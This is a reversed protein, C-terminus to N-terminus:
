GARSQARASRKGPVRGLQAGGDDGRVDRTDHPQVDYLLGAILRTAAWAGFLGVVFGTAVSWMGQAVIMRVVSSREAGLALRIGIEQTREAVAYAVVGYVGLAALVLAVIAFSASCCCTSAAHRLRSRCRMRWRRSRQLVVADSRDGVAGEQDGARRRDSRRRHADGAHRLFAARRRSSLVIRAGRRYRDGRIESRSRRRRHDGPWGAGLWPMRIRAASRIATRSLRAPGPKRQDIAVGPTDLEKFWRGSVLSMGLLPGFSPSISSVPAGRRDREGPPPIRRAKRSARADNFRPGNHDRRRPCWAANASEVRLAAAFDHRASRTATSRVRPLGHADDPDSGAHLRGSVEDDAVHEQVDPRRRGAARDTLAVQVAVMARGTILVRRSASVSRGGEKLVEQVNTFSSRSRRGVGFLLQRASRSPRGGRGARWSRADNRHSAARGRRDRRHGHQGAVVIAVRRRHRWAGRIGLSEALLQRVVRLPGSGVSMRLAIEKRREATRSLLLNAVNACTILLVVLSASLLIGLALRSPRRDQGAFAYRGGVNHRVADSPRATRRTHIADIEARAQEITVGAKSNASRRTSACAADDTHDSAAAARSAATSLRGARCSDLDVIVGFPQLQPHFADPLVAAITAPRGDISVARGIVTPDSQFMSAFVRHTLALAQPDADTPLTGLVPQAGTVEWFGESASVIRFRSAEGGVVLTSDVNDYAIM